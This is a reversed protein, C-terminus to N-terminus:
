RPEGHKEKIVPLGKETCAVLGYGLAHGCYTINRVDPDHLRKIQGQWGSSIVEKILSSPLCRLKDQSNDLLFRRLWDKAPFAKDWKWDLDASDPVPSTWPGPQLVKGESPASGLRSQELSQDLNAEISKVCKVRVWHYSVHYLCGVAGSHM